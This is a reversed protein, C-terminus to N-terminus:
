QYEMYNASIRPIVLFFVTLNCDFQFYDGAKTIFSFSLATRNSALTYFETVRPVLSASLCGKHRRVVRFSGRSMIRATM